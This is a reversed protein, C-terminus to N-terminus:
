TCIYVTDVQNLEISVPRMLAAVQALTRTSVHIRWNVGVAAARPSCASSLQQLRLV